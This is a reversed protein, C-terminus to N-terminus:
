CAVASDFRLFHMNLDEDPEICQTFGSGAVGAVARQWFALAARNELLVRVQWKGPLAGVCQRFAAAGVGRRRFRRLVFFQEVDYRGPDAPAPHALLFGCLEGASRILFAHHAADDWYADLSTADFRFRGTETMAIPCFASMDHMYLQFLNEVVSCQARGAREIEVLCM